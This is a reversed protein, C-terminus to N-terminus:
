RLRVDGLISIKDRPLDFRLYIEGGLDRVRVCLM